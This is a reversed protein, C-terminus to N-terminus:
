HSSSFSLKPSASGALGGVSATGTVMGTADTMSISAGGSNDIKGVLGGVGGVGTVNGTAHANSISSMSGDRTLASGVLGGMADKGIVNGTAFVNSISVKGGNSASVSGALAGVFNWGEVSGGALGVNRLTANEAAGLLGAHFMQATTLPRGGGASAAQGTTESNWYVNNVNNFHTGSTTHGVLGGTERKGNM